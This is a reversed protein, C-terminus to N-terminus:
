MLHSTFYMYPSDIGHPLVSLSRFVVYMEKEKAYPEQFDAVSQNDLTQTEPFPRPRGIKRPRNCNDIHVDM